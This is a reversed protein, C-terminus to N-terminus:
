KRRIFRVQEAYPSIIGISAGLLNEAHALIHERIIFFEGQNLYSRHEQHLVEEFGCGATDIFVLPQRDSRLMRDHVSEHSTLKGDYYRDNSFGLIKTTCGM